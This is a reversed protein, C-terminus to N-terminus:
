KLLVMKKSIVAGQPTKLTYSYIGSSLQTGDFQVRYTGTPHYTNVLTKVERGLLDYVTLEVKAAASLEYKITTTPNFPNPYNQHLTFTKPTRDKEVQEISTVNGYLVSDIIAGRILYEPSSFEVDTRVLGFNSALYHTTTWLSEPVGVTHMYYDIIKITVAQNFYPEQYVDSVVALFQHQGSSDQWVIWTDGSDADLKYWKDKYLPNSYYRYVEFTATDLIFKNFLTTEIYHRGDNGLSDKTIANQRIVYGGPPNEDYWYEWIDGEHHPFFDLPNQALLVPMCMIFVFISFLKIRKM